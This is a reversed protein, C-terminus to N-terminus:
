ELSFEHMSSTTAIAFSITFLLWDTVPRSRFALPADECLASLRAPIRQYQRWRECRLFIGLRGDLRSQRKNGPASGAM